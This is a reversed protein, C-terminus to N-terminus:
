LKSWICSYSYTLQAKGFWLVYLPWANQANKKVIL